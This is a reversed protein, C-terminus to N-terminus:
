NWLLGIIDFIFVNLVEFVSLPTYSVLFIIIFCCFFLKMNYFIRLFFAKFNALSNALLGLLWDVLWDTATYQMCTHVNSVLDSTSTPLTVRVFGSRM